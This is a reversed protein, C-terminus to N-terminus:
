YHEKKKKMHEYGEKDCVCKGCDCMIAYGCDPCENESNLEIKKKCNWCKSEYEPVADEYTMHSTMKNLEEISPQSDYLKGLEGEEMDFLRKGKYEMNHTLYVRIYGRCSKIQKTLIKDEGKIKWPIAHSKICDTLEDIGWYMNRSQRFTPHKTLFEHCDALNIMGKYNYSQSGDQNLMNGFPFKLGEHHMDMIKNFQSKNKELMAEKDATLPPDTFFMDYDLDKGIENILHWKFASPDQIAALLDHVYGETKLMRKIESKSQKVMIVCARRDEEDIYIPTESNSYCFFNCLNPIEVQPLNKPNIIFNDDTVFDKFEESLEKRNATNNSLSVENLFICQAGELLTSHDNTLKKFSVNPRVNRTGLMKQVIQALLKKGVGQIKGQIIIFWQAKEGAYLLMFALLCKVIHWEKEGLAFSWYENLRSVDGEKATVASPKYMNLYTGAELGKVENDELKILGEPKGAHTLYCMVKDLRADELLLATMKKRERKPLAATYHAWYDNTQDKDTWKCTSREFFSKRDRVYIYNDTLETNLVELAKADILPKVGCLEEIWKPTGNLLYENDYKEASNEAHKIDRDLNNDDPLSVGFNQNLEKLTIDCKPNHKKYLAVNFLAKHRGGEGLGICAVIMSHNRYKARFESQSKTLPIGSPSHLVTEENYEPIFIWAGASKTEKNWSKPLCHASDSKYGCLQEVRKELKEVREKAEEVDIWDDLREVVRWKNSTTKYCLYNPGIYTFINACFIDAKIRLDIDLCIWRCQWTNTDVPSIGQIVENAEHKDWDIGKKELYATKHGEEDIKALIGRHTECGKFVERLLM